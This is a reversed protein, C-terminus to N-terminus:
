IMLYDYKLKFCNTNSLKQFDIIVKKMMYISTARVSLHVDIIKVLDETAKELNM